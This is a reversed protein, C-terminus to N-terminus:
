EKKWCNTLSDYDHEGNIIRKATHDFEEHLPDYAKNYYPTHVGGLHLLLHAINDTCVPKNSADIIKQAMQPHLERYKGTIFAWMPIEYQQRVDGENFSFSRGYGPGEDCTREGHDAMFLIIADKEKFLTIIRDLVHDNYLTANDYHATILRENIDAKDYMSADFRAWGAPYRSEFEIHQGMLHFITLRGKHTTDREMTEFEDIVEGDYTYRKTNRKNFQADSMVKDNVLINENFDSYTDAKDRVYQNSIFTVEYGAKRFLVTFLPYDHWKNEDTIVDTSLMTRFADSTLNWQAIADSFPILRGENMHLKQKPTTEKDYGYLQSHHKNYSEGIILVIEPSTFSCSDVHSNSINERLHIISDRERRIEVIANALRHVPTYFRLTPEARTAMYTEKEDHGLILRHFLYRENKLCTAVSAVLLVTTVVGIHNVHKKTITNIRSGCKKCSALVTHATALMVPILAPLISHIDLYSSLAETAESSDTLLFTNLLTPTIPSGLRSWCYLDVACVVCIILSITHKAITRGKPPLLMLMASAIYLELFLQLLGLVRSGGFAIMLNCVALVAYTFFVWLPNELIPRATHRICNQIYRKM